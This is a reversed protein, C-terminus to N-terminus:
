IQIYCKSPLVALRIAKLTLAIPHVFLLEVGLRRPAWSGGLCQAQMRMAPRKQNRDVM